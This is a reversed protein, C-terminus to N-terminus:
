GGDDREGHHVGRPGPLKTNQIQAGPSSELLEARVGDPEHRRVQAGDPEDREARAGEPEHREAASDARAARGCASLSHWAPRIRGRRSGRSWAQAGM